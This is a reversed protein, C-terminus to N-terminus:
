ASLSNGLTANEALDTMLLTSYLMLSFLSENLLELFQLRRTEHPMDLWVGYVILYALHLIMIIEFSMGVSALNLPILFLPISCYMLRRFLFVAHYHRSNPSKEVKILNFLFGYRHQGYPSNLEDATKDNAWYILYVPYAFSVAYM